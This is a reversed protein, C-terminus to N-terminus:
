ITTFMKPLKIVSICFINNGAKIQTLLISLRTLLKNPPLINLGTGEKVEEKDGELPAMDSLDVSKEKDTLEEKDSWDDYNYIELLLEKPKYKDGM